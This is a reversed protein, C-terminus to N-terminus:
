TSEETILGQITNPLLFKYIYRAHSRNTSRWLLVMSNTDKNEICTYTQILNTEGHMGCSDQGNSLHPPPYHM